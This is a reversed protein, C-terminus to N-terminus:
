RTITVKTLGRPADPNLGRLLALNCAFMQGVVVNIFPTIFDNTIDPITITCDGLSLAEADNSIILIDAGTNSKIKNIMEKIDKLSEGKPAYIIVPMHNDIMAFPGHHFDSTAFAKARVYTTEQIKLASELAVAYNTGRALVFCENMFRFRTVMNQIHGANEFTKALLAPVESLEKKFGEDSSWEAVLQALLYIQATFTKTAAVSKELGSACYLHYEAETALPSDEHNTISVTPAGQSKASKLVELVDEARGSQSIGIVLSDSMKVTKNYMTFVSPAALSVPIGTKIEILYKAYVAAHDSTGRAAIIVNKIDTEKLRAVISDITRRNVNMCNELVKPQELIELWM